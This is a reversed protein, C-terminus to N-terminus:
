QTYLMNENPKISASSKFLIIFVGYFPTVDGTSHASMLAAAKVKAIHCILDNWNGM